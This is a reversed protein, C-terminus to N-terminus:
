ISTENYKKAKVYHTTTYIALGGLICIAGMIKQLSIPTEPILIKSLILVFVPVLIHFMNLRSIDLYKHAEFFMTRSIILGSLQSTTLVIFAPLSIFSIEGQIGFFIGMFVLMMLGRLFAFPIGEAQPAYRKVLFSQLAYFLSIGVMALTLFPTVEGKLNSILFLGFFAVLLGPVELFRIREGLFMIGLVLAWIADMKGLLATIGSSSEAIAWFWLIGSITSIFSVLLLVKWYKQFSIQMNERNHKQSFLLPTSISLAGLFGWFFANYISVDFHTNLVDVMVFANAAFFSYALMLLYGKKHAVTM